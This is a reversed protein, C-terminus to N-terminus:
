KRRLFLRADWAIRYAHCHSDLTSAFEIPDGPNFRSKGFLKAPIELCAINRVNGNIGSLNAARVTSEDFVPEMGAGIRGRIPKPLGPISIIWEARDTMLVTKGRYFVDEVVDQACLGLYIAKGDWCV